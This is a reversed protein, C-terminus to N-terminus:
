ATFNRRPLALNVICHWVTKLWGEIIVWSGESRLTSCKLSKRWYLLILLLGQCQLVGSSLDKLHTVVVTMLHKVPVVTEEQWVLNVQQFQHLQSFQSPIRESDVIVYVNLTLGIVKNLTM